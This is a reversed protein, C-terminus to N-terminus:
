VHGAIEPHHLFRAFWSGAHASVEELKGPEEFLHTAEDIVVLEKPGSLQEFALENLKLVDTDLSGVMFLTAAKVNPLADLAMDPRGGRSVVAHIRDSFFAAANLASAAGTSAGFYGVTMDKGFPQSIIWETASILRETLLSIDFRADTSDENENLLDFLLTAFGLNRLHRAVQKNRPSHRSSGSGHSFIILGAAKGPIDLDGSLHLNVLPISLTEHSSSM